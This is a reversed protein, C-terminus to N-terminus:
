EPRDPESQGIQSSRDIRDILLTPATVAEPEISLATRLIGVADDRRAADRWHIAFLPMGPEVADGIEVRVDIGVAHDIEEGARERGGGLVGCARGVAACDFSHVFGSREAEIVVTHPARPLVKQPSDVVSPDGSQAEIMKRLTELGAGSEIADHLMQEAAETDTAIGALDLMERGLALCVRVFDEPGEGQLAAIAEAVETANGVARGLPQEMSTLLTRTRCGMAEGIEIMTRALDRARAVTKMFAGSGVKVDLVLGDLGEALKKSMISAAILPTSPVTGTVDRLAYLKRDAPALSATQGSIAVGVEAVCREFQAADLEVNMGPISELKDLTGGTHGLGRGSIMPISAGCAAVLPALTLSVKDGVGGTSHKDVLFRTDPVAGLELVDGSELMARTYAVLEEPSMGQFFVAMLFAATQYDPVRGDAIKAVFEALAETPISGGDRKLEIIDVVRM